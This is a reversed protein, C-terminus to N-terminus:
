FTRQWYGVDVWRGLKSGVEHFHAVKRMGFKEHLAISAENPLAIGAMVAHIGRTQLLPFLEAYLKSGIGRRREGPALYATIEASFRYASRERWKAACAYGVVRDLEQAILWPLSASRTEDMRQVMDAASIPDEEFTIVTQAVYHNYINALAPADAETAARVTVPSSDSEM